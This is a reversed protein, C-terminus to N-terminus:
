PSSPVAVLLALPPSSNARTNRVQNPPRFAAVISRIGGLLGRQWSLRPEGSGPAWQVSNQPRSYAALRGQPTFGILSAAAVLISKQESTCNASTAPFRSRSAKAFTRASELAATRSCWAAVRISPFPGAVADNCVKLAQEMAYQFIPAGATAWGGAGGSRAAVSVEAHLPPGVRGGQPHKLMENAIHWILDLFQRAQRSPIPLDHKSYFAHLINRKNITNQVLLKSQHDYLMCQNVEVEGPQMNALAGAISDVSKGKGEPVGPRRVTASGGFQGGSARQDFDKALRQTARGEDFWPPEVSCPVVTASQQLPLYAAHTRGVWPTDSRAELAAVLPTLDCDENGDDDLIVTADVIRFLRRYPPPPPPQTM